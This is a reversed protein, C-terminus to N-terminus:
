LVTRVGPHRTRAGSTTAPGRQGQAGDCQEIVTEEPTTKEVTSANGLSGVAWVDGPSSAAVGYLMAQGTLQPGPVISWQLGDWHEILPEWVTHQDITDGIFTRTMSGASGVAWADTATIAVVGALGNATFGTNQGAVVQWGSNVSNVM